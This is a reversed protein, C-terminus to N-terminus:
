SRGAQGPRAPASPAPGLLAPLVLLTSFLTYFLMLALLGGMGATGPHSSLALSGFAVGTTLGSFLVARALSSQLPGSAGARWNSVFYIDFAVGVGLLLPLAIINAFNLAMGSVVMTTSTLLAALVLPALVLLVDRVRRLLVSLLVSITVLATIGAWKFAQVVTDGSEPITIPAGTADPAIAQVARAFARLNASNRVNGKPFVEIRTRGDSAVWDRKLDDPLTEISVPAAELATRLADIRHSFGALLATGLAGVPPPQAALVRELASALRETAPSPDSENIAKLRKACEAIADFIDRETPQTDVPPLALTPGLLMNVDEIIRLKEGQDKPVFSALTLVRKVESLADLRKAMAEADPLSPSLIDISLPQSDPDAILEFMTAASETHPNKLKLPDFDFRLQPLLALGALGVLLAVIRIPGRRELLFRDLGAAWAFGVPAPEGGPRVLALLAPLLTLNLVFAILMGAGSILGLESLGTYDTPLFSFFGLAAATAALGLPGGIMTATRKLASAFDDDKFREDRYRTCFQIAFDVAIGVFLVAFGVSILNLAGVAATAFAATWVLGTATTALVVIILRASRLAAFLILTVLLGCAILAHSMGESVSAFEDDSLPVSGTLRVRVGNEPTLGLARAAERIAASSRAGPQLASYDLVPKVILFRRLEEPRPSHGTLLTQWSMPRAHGALVGEVSDAVASLARDLSKAEIEKRAVGELALNLSGFLGRLSPDATLTGLLPQADILQKAIDSLEPVSLFLMGNREFFPGGGPREVSQFLAPEASLREYLARVADDAADPTAADIVVVTRGVAGPFVSVFALERKRWPTDASILDNTNTNISLHAGVYGALLATALVYLALILFKRRRCVDVLRAFADTM